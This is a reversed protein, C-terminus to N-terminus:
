RMVLKVSNRSPHSSGKDYNSHDSDSGSRGFGEVAVRILWRGRGSQQQVADFDRTLSGREISRSMGTAKGFWHSQLVSIDSFEKGV